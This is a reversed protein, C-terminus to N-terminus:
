SDVQVALSKSVVRTEVVRVEDADLRAARSEAESLAEQYRDASPAAYILDRWEEVRVRVVLRRPASRRQGHQAASM